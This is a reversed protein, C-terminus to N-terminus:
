SGLLRSTSVSTVAENVSRGGSGRVGSWMVPRDGLQEAM